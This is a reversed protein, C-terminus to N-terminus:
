STPRYMSLWGLAAFVVQNLVARETDMQPKLLRQNDLEDVVEVLALNRRNKLLKAVEKMFSYVVIFDGPAPKPSNHELGVLASVLLHWQSRFKSQLYRTYWLCSSIMSGKIMQEGTLFKILEDQKKLEEETLKTTWDICQTLFQSLFQAVNTFFGVTIEMM